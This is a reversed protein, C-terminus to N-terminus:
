QEKKFRKLREKLAKYAVKKAKDDWSPYDKDIKNRLAKATKKNM